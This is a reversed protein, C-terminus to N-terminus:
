FFISNLILVFLITIKICIEKHPLKVKTQATPYKHDSKKSKTDEKNDKVKRM